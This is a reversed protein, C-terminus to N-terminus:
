YLAVNYIRVFTFARSYVDINFIDLTQKLKNLLLLFIFRQIASFLNRGSFLLILFSSVQKQVVLYNYLVYNCSTCYTTFVNTDVTRLLRWFNCRQSKYPFHSM